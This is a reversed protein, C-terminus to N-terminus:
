LVGCFMSEHSSHVAIRNNSVRLSIRMLGLNRPPFVAKLYFGAKLPGKRRTLPASTGMACEGGM